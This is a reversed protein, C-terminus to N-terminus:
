FYKKNIKIFGVLTKSLTGINYRTDKVPNRTQIEICVGREDQATWLEALLTQHLWGEFHTALDFFYVGKM